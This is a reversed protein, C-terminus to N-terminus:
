VIAITRGAGDSASAATLEYASQLQSPGYGVGAPIADPSAIAPIPHLGGRKLVFCSHRGVIMASCVRTARSDASTVAPQSAHAGHAIESAISVSPPPPAASTSVTLATVGTALAAASVVALGRKLRWGTLLLNMFIRETPFRRACRASACRPM